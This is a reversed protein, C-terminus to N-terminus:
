LDRQEQIAKIRAEHEATERKDRRVQFYLNLLLGIIAFLAGSLGLWDIQSAWGVVGAAAGAVTTKSGVSAGIAEAVDSSDAM